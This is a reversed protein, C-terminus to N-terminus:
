EVLQARSTDRDAFDRRAAECRRNACSRRQVGCRGGDPLFRALNMSHHRVPNPHVSLPTQHPLRAAAPLALVRRMDSSGLSCSSVHRCSKELWADVDLFDGAAHARDGTDRRRDRQEDAPRRASRDITRQADRAEGIELPGIATEIAARQEAVADLLEEVIAAGVGVDDGDRRRIRGIGGFRRGAVQAIQMDRRTRGALPRVGEAHPQGPARVLRRAEAEFDDHRGVVVRHHLRELVQRYM